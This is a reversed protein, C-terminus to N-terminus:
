GVDVLLNIPVAPRGTARLEVFIGVNADGGARGNYLHLLIIVPLRSVVRATIIIVVQVTLMILILAFLVRGRAM